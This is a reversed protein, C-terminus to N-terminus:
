STRSELPMIGAYALDDHDCQARRCVACVAVAERSVVKKGQMYIVGAVDQKDSLDIAIMVTNLDAKM